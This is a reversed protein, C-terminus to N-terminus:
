SQWGKTEKVLIFLFAEMASQVSSYRGLRAQAELAGDQLACLAREDFAASANQLWQIRDLALPEGGTKIRMLDALAECICDLLQAAQQRNYGKVQALRDALLAPALPELLAFATERLAFYAEDHELELARGLVGVSLATLLPARDPAVGRALLAQQCLQPELPGLHVIQMRSLVTPLLQATQDATIFFATGEAPEELRKLLANQANKNIPSTILVSRRAGEYPRMALKEILERADDVGIETRSTTVRIYDPHSGAQVRLCPGCVGCPKDPGTCLWAQACLQALTKKGCGRPGSFLIAHVIAGDQRPARRRRVVASQGYFEDFRM